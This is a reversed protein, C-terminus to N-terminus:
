VFKVIAKKAVDDNWSPLPDTQALASVTLGLAALLL